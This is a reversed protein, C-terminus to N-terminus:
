RDKHPLLKRAGGKWDDREIRDPFTDIAAAVRAIDGKTFAAIQEWATIGLSNLTKELVPGIGYIQKLDDKHDAM